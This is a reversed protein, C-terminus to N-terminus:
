KSLGDLRGLAHPASSPLACPNFETCPDNPAAHGPGMYAETATADSPKFDAGHGPVPDPIVPPTYTGALPDTQALAVGPMAGAILAALTALHLLQLATKM